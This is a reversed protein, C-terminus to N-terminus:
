EKNKNSGQKKGGKIVCAYRGTVWGKLLSRMCQQPRLTIAKIIETDQGQGKHRNLESETM